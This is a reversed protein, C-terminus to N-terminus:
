SSPFNDVKRRKEKKGGEEEDEVKREEEVEERGDRPARRWTLFSLAATFHKSRQPLNQRYESGPDCSKM